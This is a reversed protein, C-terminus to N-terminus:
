YGYSEGKVRLYKSTGANTAVRILSEIKDKSVADPKFCRISRRVMMFQEIDTPNVSIEIRQSVQQESINEHSIADQPCYLVCHGCNCCLDPNAPIIKNPAGGNKQVFVFNPCIDTCIGCTNCSETDFKIM